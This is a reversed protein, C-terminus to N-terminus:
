VRCAAASRSVMRPESRSFRRQCLGFACRVSDVVFLSHRLRTRRYLREALGPNQWNCSWTLASVTAGASFGEQAASGVSTSCHFLRVNSCLSRQPAQEMTGISWHELRWLRRRTSEAPLGVTLWPLAYAPLRLRCFWSGLVLFWRVCFQNRTGPMQNGGNPARAHRSSATRRRSGVPPRASM